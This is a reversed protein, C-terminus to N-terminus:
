ASDWNYDLNTSTPHINCPTFGNYRNMCVKAVPPLHRRLFVYAASTYLRVFAAQRTRACSTDSLSGQICELPNQGDKEAEERNPGLLSARPHTPESKQASSSQGEYLDPSRLSIGRRESTLFDRKRSVGADLRQRAQARRLSRRAKQCTPVLTGYLSIVTLHTKDPFTSKGRGRGLFLFSKEDGPQFVPAKLDSKRYAVYGNAASQQWTCDFPTPSSNQSSRYVQFQSLIPSSALVDVDRISSSVGAADRRPGRQFGTQRHHSPFHRVLKERLFVM